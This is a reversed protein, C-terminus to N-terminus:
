LNEAEEMWIRYSADSPMSWDGRPGLGVSTVKPGDPMCNRKFQQTFFRRYFNKLWKKITEGDFDNAFARCAM